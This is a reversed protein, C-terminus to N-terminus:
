WEHQQGYYRRSIPFGVDVLYTKLLCVYIYIYVYLYIYIICIYIYMYIYVTHIYIYIYVTYIELAWQPIGRGRNGLPPLHHLLFERRGCLRLDLLEFSAGKAPLFLLGRRVQHPHTDVRWPYEHFVYSMITIYSM